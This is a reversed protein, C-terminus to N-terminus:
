IDQKRMVAISSRGAEAVAVAAVAVAAEEVVGIVEDAAMGEGCAVVIRADPASYLRPENFANKNNCHHICCITKLYVHMYTSCGVCTNIMFLLQASVDISRRGVCAPHRTIRFTAGLVPTSHRIRYRGTDVHLHLLRQEAVSAHSWPSWTVRLGCQDNVRVCRPSISGIGNKLESWTNNSDSAHNAGVIAAAARAMRMRGQLRGRVFTLRPVFM